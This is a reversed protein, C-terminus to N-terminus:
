TDFTATETLPSYKIKYDRGDPNGLRSRPFGGSGGGSGSVGSCCWRQMSVNLCFILVVASVTALCFLFIVVPTLVTPVLQGYSVNLVWQDDLYGSENGGRGATPGVGGFLFFNDDLSWQVSDYRGLPSQYQQLRSEIDNRSSGPSLRTYEVGGRGGRVRSKTWNNTSSSSMLKWTLNRTDFLWLDSLPVDVERMRERKQKQQAINEYPGSVGERGVNGRMKNGEGGFLWLNGKSDTWGASKGRCDPVNKSSLCNLYRRPVTDSGSSRSAAFKSRSGSAPVNLCGSLCSWTGNDLSFMWLDSTYGANKLKRHTFPDVTNGGFMYLENNNGRGVWTTADSRAKPLHSHRGPGLSPLVPSWALSELSFTWMDSLLSSQDRGGFMIMRDNLCWVASSRRSPPSSTSDQQVRNLNIWRKRKQYFVWTDNLVQGSEEAGGYVAFLVGPLGCSVSGYRPKPADLFPPAQAARNQWGSHTLKWINEKTHHIWLDNLLVPDRDSQIDWFTHGGFLWLTGNSDGWASSGSRPGPHYDLYGQDIYNPIDRWLWKQAVVTKSDGVLHLVLTLFHFMARSGDM